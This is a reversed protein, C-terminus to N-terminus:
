VACSQASAPIHVGPVGEACAAADAHHDANHIVVPSNIPSLCCAVLWIRADLQLVTDDCLITLLQHFDAVSTRTFSPTALQCGESGAPLVQRSMDDGTTVQSCMCWRLLCALRGIIQMAHMTSAICPSQSHMLCGDPTSM